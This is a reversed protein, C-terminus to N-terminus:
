GATPIDDPNVLGSIAWWLFAVLFWALGGNLGASPEDLLLVGLVYISAWAAALASLGTYGWTKSQPPWRTSILALAGVGIWMGAWVARPMIVDRGTNNATILVLGYAIYITGAFALVLSHRQWPRLKM